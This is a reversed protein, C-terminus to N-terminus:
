GYTNNWERKNTMKSFNKLSSIYDTYNIGPISGDDAVGIMYIAIGNGEHIRWKLQSALQEIRDDSDTTIKLKYEINGSEIEPPLKM